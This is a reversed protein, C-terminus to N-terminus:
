DIANKMSKKFIECTADSILEYAKDLKEKEDAFGRRDCIDLMYNLYCAIEEFAGSTGWGENMSPKRNLEKRM